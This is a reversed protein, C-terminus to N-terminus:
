VTDEYAFGDEISLKNRQPSIYPEAASEVLLRGFRQGMLGM